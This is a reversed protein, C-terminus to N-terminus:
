SKRWLKFVEWLCQNVGNSNELYKDTIYYLGNQKSLYVSWSTMGINMYESAYIDYVDTQEYNNSKRIAFDSIPNCIYPTLIETKGETYREAVKQFDRDKIAQFYEMVYSEKEDQPEIHANYHKFKQQIDWHRLTLLLSIVIPIFLIVIYKRRLCNAM